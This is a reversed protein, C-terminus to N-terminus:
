GLLAVVMVDLTSLTRNTLVKDIVVQFILPTVLAHDARVAFGAAGGGHATKYKGLSQWFWAVVPVETRRM